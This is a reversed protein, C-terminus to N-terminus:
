ATPDYDRTVRIITFPADLHPNEEEESWACRWPLELEFIKPRKVERLPQFVQIETERDMKPGNWLRVRLERLGEM